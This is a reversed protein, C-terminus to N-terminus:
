LFNWHLFGFVDINFSGELCNHVRWRLLSSLKILLNHNLFDFLWGNRLVVLDRRLFFGDLSFWLDNWFWMFLVFFDGMIDLCSGNTVRIIKGWDIIIADDIRMVIGVGLLCQFSAINVTLSKSIGLVFRVFITLVLELFRLVLFDPVTHLRWSTVFNDVSWHIKNLFLFRLCSDTLLNRMADMGETSVGSSWHFSRLFLSISKQLIVVLFTWLM